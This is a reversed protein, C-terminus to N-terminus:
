KITTKYYQFINLMEEDIDAIPMEADVGKKLGVLGKVYSKLTMPHCAMNAEAFLGFEEQIMEVIKALITKPVKGILLNIKIIAADGREELFSYFSEYDRVSVNIEENCSVTEGSNLTFSAMSVENMADPLLKQSYTNFEEKAEKLAATASDLALKKEKFKEALAAIRKLTDGDSETDEVETLYSLDETM